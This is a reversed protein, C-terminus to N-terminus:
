IEFIRGKKTTFVPEIRIPEGSFFKKGVGIVVARLLLYCFLFFPIRVTTKFRMGGFM